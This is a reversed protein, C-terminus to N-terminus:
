TTRGLQLQELTHDDPKEYYHNGEHNNKLVCIKRIGDETWFNDDCIKEYVSM